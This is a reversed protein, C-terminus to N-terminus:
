IVDNYFESISKDINIKEEEDVDRYYSTTYLNCIGRLSLIYKEQAAQLFNDKKLKAPLSDLFNNLKEQSKRSNSFENNIFYNYIETMSEPLASALSSTHAKSGMSLCSYFQSAVATIVQFSSSAMSVVKFISVCDKTSFKVGAINPYDKIKSIFDPTFPKSWNASTYLWIPRSSYDAIRRYFYELRDFSLLPHYPMIHYADFQLDATADIFSLIDEMAFFGAGLVLPVQGSNVETVIRAVQLRKAFTLNMDESGTGLAWIGGIEKGVLFQVLKGLAKEDIEGSDTLPTVLVPVVGKILGTEIM